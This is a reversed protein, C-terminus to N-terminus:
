KEGTNKIGNPASPSTALFVFDSGKENDGFDGFRPENNEIRELFSKIEALTLISDLGGRSELAELLRSAFPSHHGPTGDPVYEKGGSTVFLRATKSLKRAVFELDDVGAADEETGRSKAIQPDFTGGFCVDMSLLIHKCPINNIYTRLNSHSIYSARAKDGRWSDKAVVYGEGLVDDFQGHGAFFIFLQDQSRFTRQSYERIKEIIEEHRANVILQTEFNYETELKHAIAQADAIPNILGTWTDYENIAFLLAYDKRNADVRDNTRKGVFVTRTSSVVTGDMGEVLIQIYGSGDPMYVNRKIDFVRSDPPISLEKIGWAEGTVHSGLTLTIKKIPASTSQVAADIFVHMSNSHTYDQEPKVWRILPLFANARPQNLNLYVDDSRTRMEQAWTTLNAILLFLPITKMILQKNKM